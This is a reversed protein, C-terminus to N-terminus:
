GERQGAKKKIKERGKNTKREKDTQINRKGMRKREKVKKEYERM